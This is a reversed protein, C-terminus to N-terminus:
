PSFVGFGFPASDISSQGVARVLYWLAGGSGGGSAGEEWFPLPCGIAMGVVRDVGVAEDMEM